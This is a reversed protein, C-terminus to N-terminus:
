RARKWDVLTRVADEVLVGVVLFNRRAELFNRHEELFSHREVAAPAIRHGTEIIKCFKDYVFYIFQLTLPKHM